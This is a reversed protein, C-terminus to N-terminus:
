GQWRLAGDADFQVTGTRWVLHPTVGGQVVHLLVEALNTEALARLGVYSTTPRPNIEIVADQSGDEASGLVLDVGVYGHLDPVSEVAPKAVQVARSSLETALPVAGGLYHFRHDDSLRQAAPLLPVLGHPGALFAMSAPQGPLFSQLLAEGQWGEATAREVCSALEKVDQVLFTAQSGAGWRPKWVLPFKMQASNKGSRFLWSEPTPIGRHRLYGSLALKDGTLEVAAL